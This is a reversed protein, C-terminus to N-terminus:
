KRKRSQGDSRNMGGKKVQSQSATPKRSQTQTAPPDVYTEDMEEDNDQDDQHDLQASKNRKQSSSSSKTM